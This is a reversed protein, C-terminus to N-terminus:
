QGRAPLGPPKPANGAELPHPPGEPLRGRGQGANRPTEGRGRCESGRWGVTVFLGNIPSILRGTPFFRPSLHPVCVCVCLCARTCVRGSESRAEALPPPPSTCPSKPQTPQGQSLEAEPFGCNRAGTGNWRAKPHINQLHHIGPWGAKGDRGGMREMHPRREAALVKTASLPGKYYWAFALIAPSSSSSHCRSCSLGIFNVCGPCGRWPTALPHCM